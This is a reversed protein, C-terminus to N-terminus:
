QRLLIKELPGNDRFLGPRNLFEKAISRRSALDKIVTAMEKDLVYPVTKLFKSHAEV